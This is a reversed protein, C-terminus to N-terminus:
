EAEMSPPESAIREALRLLGTQEIWSLGESNAITLRPHPDGDVLISLVVVASAVLDTDEVDAHIGLGDIIEGLPKSV